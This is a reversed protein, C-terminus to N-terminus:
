KKKASIKDALLELEPLGNKVIEVDHSFGKDTRYVAVYVNGLGSFGKGGGSNTAAWAPALVRGVFYGKLANNVIRTESNRAKSGNFWGAVESEPDEDTLLLWSDQMRGNYGQTTVLKAPILNGKLDFLAPFESKGNAELIKARQEALDANINAAAQSAWGDTDCDEFSQYARKRGDAVQKRYDEATMTNEFM